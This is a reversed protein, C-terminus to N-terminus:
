ASLMAMVQTTSVRKYLCGTNTALTQASGAAIQNIACTATPPYVKLANAGANYVWCDDGVECNPLQVGAGSAVTSVYSVTATLDTADTIVTGAASVSPAVQGNFGKASGASVGAKVVDSALPM